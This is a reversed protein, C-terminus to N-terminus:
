KVIKLNEKTSMGKKGEFSTGWDEEIEKLVVPKSRFPVFWSDLSTRWTLHSDECDGETEKAFVSKTRSPIFWFELSTRLVLHRLIQVVNLCLSISCILYFLFCNRRPWHSEWVFELVQALLFFVEDGPYMLQGKIDIFRFPNFESPNQWAEPDHYMARVNFLVIADKPINFMRLSTDVTTKHPALFPFISNFRLTETVMARFYPLDGKDQLTPMCGIRGIVNNIKQQIKEQVDPYNVLYAIVWLM